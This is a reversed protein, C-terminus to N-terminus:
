DNCLSKTDYLVLRAVAGITKNLQRVTFPDDTITYYRLYLHIAYNDKWDFNEDFLQHLMNGPPSCFTMNEVHIWSPHARAIRTPLFLSYEFYRNSDHVYNTQFQKLWQVIFVSSREAMILGNSLNTVYELSMTAPYKMLPDLSRLLITDMDLYIGGYEKLAILRALDSRHEITVLTNNNKTREPQDMRVHIINPVNRILYNWYPGSPIVDGHLMILCPNQFKHVSLFGLM